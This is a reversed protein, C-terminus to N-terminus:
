NVVKHNAKTNEYMGDIAIKLADRTQEFTYGKAQLISYLNSVMGAIVGDMLAEAPLVNEWENIQTQSWAMLNQTYTQAFHLEQETPMQQEQPM